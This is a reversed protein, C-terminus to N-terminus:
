SRFTIGSTGDLKNILERLQINELQRREAGRRFLLARQPNTQEHNKAIDMDLKIMDVNDGIRGHLALIVLSTETITLTSVREDQVTM